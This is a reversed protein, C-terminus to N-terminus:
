NELAMDKLMKRNAYFYFLFLPKYNLAEDLAIKM